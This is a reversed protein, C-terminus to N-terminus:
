TTTSRSRSSWCRPPWCRRSRDGPLTVKFFTRVPGAGLDMAAEELSRDFGAIRAKVVVVAYSVSFAVHALIVTLFGLRLGVAAFLLLLSSALVIEPLWTPLMM